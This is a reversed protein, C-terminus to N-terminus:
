REEREENVETKMLFLRVSKRQWKGFARMVNHAYCEFVPHCTDYNELFDGVALFEFCRQVKELFVSCFEFLQDFTLNEYTRFSIGKPPFKENVKEGWRLLKRSGIVNFM